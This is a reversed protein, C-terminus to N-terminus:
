SGAAHRRLGGKERVDRDVPDMLAQGIRPRARDQPQCPAAEKELLAPLM